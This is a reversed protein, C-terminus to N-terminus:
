AAAKLAKLGAKSVKFVGLAAGEITPHQMLKKSQKVLGLKVLKKTFALSPGSDDFYSVPQNKKIWTLARSQTKTLEPIEM